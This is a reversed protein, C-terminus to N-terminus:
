HQNNYFMLSVSETDLVSHRFYTMKLSLSLVRVLSSLSEDGLPESHCISNDNRFIKSKSAIWLVVKMM